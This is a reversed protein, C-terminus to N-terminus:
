QESIPNEQSLYQRLVTRSHALRSKITGTPISLTESISVVTYGEFYFLHFVNKEREPLCDLLIELEVMLLVEDSVFNDDHELWAYDDCLWEHRRKSKRLYDICENYVVRRLWGYNPCGCHLKGMNLWTKLFANQMIDEVEQPHRVMSSAIKKLPIAHQEWIEQLNM